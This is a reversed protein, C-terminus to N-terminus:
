VQVAKITYNGSGADEFVLKVTIDESIKVRIDSNFTTKTNINIGSANRGVEIANHKPSGAGPEGDGVIFVPNNVTINDPDPDNGTGVITSYQQVGTLWSGLLMQQNVDAPNNEHGFSFSAYAISGHDRNTVGAFLKSLKLDSINVANSLNAAGSINLTTSINVPIDDFCVKKNQADYWLINKTDNISNGCGLTLLANNHVKAYRGLVVSSSKATSPINNGFGIAIAQQQDITNSFGIAITNQKTITNSSGNQGGLIFCGNGTAEVKNYSGAIFSNQSLLVNARGVTTSCYGYNVNEKGFASGYRGFTLNSEGAIVSNLAYSKNGDGLALSNYSFEIGEIDDSAVSYVAYNITDEFEVPIILTSDPNTKAKKYGTPIIMGRFWALKDVTYEGVGSNYATGSYPNDSEVYKFGCINDLDSEKEATISFYSQTSGSSTDNYFLNFNDNWVYVSFYLRTNDGSTSEGPFYTTPITQLYTGAAPTDAVSLLDFYLKNGIQKLSNKFQEVSDTLFIDATTRSTRRIARIYLAKLSTENQADAYVTPNSVNITNNVKLDDITAEESSLSTSNIIPSDISDDGSTGMYIHIDTGVNIRDAVLEWAQVRALGNLDANNIALNGSSVYIDTDLFKTNSGSDTYGAIKNAAKFTDAIPSVLEGNVYNTNSSSM